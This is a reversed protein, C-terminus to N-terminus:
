KTGSEEKLKRGRKIAAEIEYGSFEINDFNKHWNCNGKEHWTSHADAEPSVEVFVLKSFTYEFKKGCNTCRYIM